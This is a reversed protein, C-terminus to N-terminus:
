TMGCPVETELLAIAQVALGEGRGEFGLRETTTAKISVATPPVNLIPALREVMTTVFPGIRPHELIVVADVNVVRLGASHMMAVVRQLIICSDIGRYAPDSPPFHTGIDGLAAAGLIADCVAHILVDADSHGDPGRDCPIRVGGLFFPRDVVLPHVDYGLGIRFGM